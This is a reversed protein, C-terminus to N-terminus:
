MSEPQPPEAIRPQAIRYGAHPVIGGALEGCREIEGIRDRQRRAVPKGHVLQRERGGCRQTEVIRGCPCRASILSVIARIPRGAATRRIVPM